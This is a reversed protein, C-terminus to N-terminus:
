KKKGKPKDEHLLDNVLLEIAKNTENLMDRVLWLAGSHPQSVIDDAVLELVDAANSIKNNLEDIKCAIEWIM